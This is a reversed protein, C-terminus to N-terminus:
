QRKGNWAKRIPPPAKEEIGDEEGIIGRPEKRFVAFEKDLFHLFLVGNEDNDRLILTGVEPYHVKEDKGAKPNKISYINM